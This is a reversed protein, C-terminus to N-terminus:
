FLLYNRGKCLDILKRCLPSFKDSDKSEIGFNARTAVGLDLCEMFRHSFGFVSGLSFTSGKSKNVEKIIGVPNPSFSYEFRVGYAASAFVISLISLYCQLYLHM